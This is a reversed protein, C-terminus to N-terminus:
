ACSKVQLTLGKLPGSFITTTPYSDVDVTHPALAPRPKARATTSTFLTGTTRPAWESRLVYVESGAKLLVHETRKAPGATRKIVQFKRGILNRNAIPYNEYGAWKHDVAVMVAKTEPCSNGAQAGGVALVAGVLGAWVSRM